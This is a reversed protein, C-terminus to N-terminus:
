KLFGKQLNVSFKGHELFVQAKSRHLSVAIAWAVKHALMLHFLDFCAHVPHKLDHYSTFMHLYKTM